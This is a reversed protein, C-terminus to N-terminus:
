EWAPFDTLAMMNDLTKQFGVTQLGNSVFLFQANWTSFYALSQSLTDQHLPIDMNKCEILLFPSEDKYVAIDMRKKQHNVMIQKEVSILTLPYNKVLTLYLIINQRVWEEPTFSLWKKRAICFIMMQNATKKLKPKESPFHLTFM